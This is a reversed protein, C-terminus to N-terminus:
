QVDTTRRLIRWDNIIIESSLWQKDGTLFFTMNYEDQRDLYEQNDMKEHYFGKVLLAYDRLSVSFVTRGTDHVKVTLTPNNSMFLRNVTFEALSGGLVARSGISAAKTDPDVPNTNVEVTGTVTRWPKYIIETSVDRLSNDHNLWGNNDTIYFDFDEHNVVEGSVHQLVVRIINTDKVLPVVVEQPNGIKNEPLTARVFGHFLPKIDTSSVLGDEKQERNMMCHFDEIASIGIEGAALSYDSDLLGGWVLIDYEGPDIVLDIKNGDRLQNKDAEIRKELLGTKTDFFLMTVYDVENVFADAFKMNHTYEFRVTNFSEHCDSYDYVADCGVMTGMTVAALLFLNIKHLRTKLNM